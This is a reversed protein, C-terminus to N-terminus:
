GNGSLDWLLVNDLGEEMVTDIAVNEEDEIGDLVLNTPMVASSTRSGNFGIDIKGGAAISENWETPKLVYHTGVHSVITANWISTIDGAFDFEITWGELPIAATNTVTLAGGFGSGWDSTVAFTVGAAPATSTSSSSGTGASSGSSTGTSVMGESSSNSTTDTVSTSTAPTSTDMTGAGSSNSESVPEQTTTVMTTMSNTSAGTKSLSTGNLVYNTPVVTSSSRAGNFGFSVTAGAALEANWPAPKIVYHDGTHSVIAANWISTIEGDFDFELVWSSINAGTTNTLAIDGGFGSGWDASVSFVVGDPPEPAPATDDDRITVQASTAALTAGTANTFQVFFVEDGEVESDDSLSLAIVKSTEGPAFTLTGSASQYDSGSKASDDLTGYTVTITETSAASLRVVLSATGDAESVTQNSLLIKPVTPQPDPDPDPDPNPDPDTTSGDLLVPNEYYEQVKSIWWYGDSPPSGVGDTSDGVGAGFYIGVIGAEAAEQMHSAWTITGNSATVSADGGNNTAFFDYRAGSATFSDGLFFTGASDEYHTSTNTLTPYVGSESYPDTSLSGNIHGVPVQWLIVPAGTTEHLSKTFVLYNSWQDANWFWTSAAPNNAAGNQAAADLGYKDISIFSAGYSLIGASMYYEAIAQAEAAIAARGAEIGMTDTLHMIGTSPISTTIGPSAWLNFQWGFEVNPAYKAITYNIAEVLGKISNDFSPDVGETLVGSSFASSTMAQIQDPTLGSNQMMYGLFDPELIFQVTEDPAIQQIMDLAFKLDEFYKEMYSADQIHQLDTYYSEGGDPINYWVFAPIMGLKLSEQLYSELRGGDGNGWSRWGNEPGGNLYIYRVDMRKNTSLDDGFDQWFTLDATTDESVSGVALYDPMGPLEGDETRVRVGVYRIEGTVTDEIKISARGATLGTLRLNGEATIEPTVVTGNSTVVTFNTNTQGVERLSFETTGQDITVQFAQSQADVEDLIIASAGGALYTAEDSSTSGAANSVVVQYTFAGYDRDSIHLTATQPASSSAPLNSSYIVEGNEIVEWSTATTGSWINFTVNFGGNEWDKQISLSPKNPANSPAAQDDNLITGTASNDGIVAGVANSLVVSFTENSEVTADGFVAVTVSKSTEGPAFVLTGAVARYDSDSKATGDLTSYGVSVSESSAASLSVTFVALTEGSNGEQISLDGIALSPLDSTPDSPDSPDTPDTPDTPTTETQGNLAYNAPEISGDGAGGVFGFSVTTGAAIDANWSSGGIVYTNGVHSIVSANWISQIDYPLEFSLTWDEVAEARNNVMSIEATFGTNWQDATEFDVLVGNLDSAM